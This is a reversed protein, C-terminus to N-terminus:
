KNFITTVHGMKRGPRADLERYFHAAADSVALWKTFTDFAARILNKM